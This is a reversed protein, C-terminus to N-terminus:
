PLFRLFVQNGMLRGRQTLRIAGGDNLLLGLDVLESVEEGYATDVDKGFRSAFAALSIGDGLRLGLIVTEAMELAGDIDEQGEVAM